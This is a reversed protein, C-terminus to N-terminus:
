SNGFYTCTILETRVICQVNTKNKSQVQSSGFDDIYMEICSDEYMFTSYFKSFFM